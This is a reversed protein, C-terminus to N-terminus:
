RPDGGVRPVRPLQWRLRRQTSHEALASPVPAGADDNQAKALKFILDDLRRIQRVRKRGGISDVGLNGTYDGPRGTKSHLSCRKRWVLNSSCKQRGPQPSDGNCRAAEKLIFEAEAAWADVAASGGAQLGESWQEESLTPPCRELEKTQNPSLSLCKVPAAAWGWEELTKWSFTAHVMRHTPVCVKHVGCFLFAAAAVRNAYIRDIRSSKCGGHRFCTDLIEHEHRSASMKQLDYWHGSNAAGHLVNSSEETANWDGLVLAPGAGWSAAIQFASSFLDEKAATSEADQNANGYIKIVLLQLQPSGPVALRV